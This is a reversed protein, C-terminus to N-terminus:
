IFKIINKIIFGQLYAAIEDNTTNARIGRSKLMFNTAHLAEHAIYKIKDKKNNKKNIWIYVIDGNEWSCGQISKKANKIKKAIKKEKCHYVNVQHDIIPIKIKIKKM